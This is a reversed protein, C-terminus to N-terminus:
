KGARRALVTSGATDSLHSYPANDIVAPAAGHEGDEATGSEGREQRGLRRRRGVSRATERHSRHLTWKLRLIERIQRM